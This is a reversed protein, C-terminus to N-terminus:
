KKCGMIKEDIKKSLLEIHLQLLEKNVKTIEDGRKLEDEYLHKQYLLSKVDVKSSANLSQIINDFLDEYAKDGDILTILINIMNHYLDRMLKINYKKLWNEYGNILGSYLRKMKINDLESVDKVIYKGRSLRSAAIFTNLLMSKVVTHLFMWKDDAM